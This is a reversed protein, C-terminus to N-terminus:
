FQDKFIQELTIGETLHFIKLGCKEAGKLHGLTDDIFLTRDPDLSNEKIVFEFIKTDPKRMGIEHSLYVKEFFDDLNKMRKERNLYEYIWEIHLENTNSLCFTRYKEKAKELITFRSDPIDKLMANWADKIENQISDKGAEALDSIVKIFDNSTIKGTEYKEFHSISNLQQIVEDYGEGFLKKFANSTAEMELNIVVMGLDFIITDLDNFLKHSM